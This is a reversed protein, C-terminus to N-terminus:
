AINELHMWNTGDKEILKPVLITEHKSPTLQQINYDGGSVWNDEIDAGIVVWFGKGARMVHTIQPLEGENYDISELCDILWNETSNWIVM